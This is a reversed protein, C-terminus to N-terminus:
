HVHHPVDAGRFISVVIVVTVTMAMAFWLKRTLGFRHRVIDLRLVPISSRWSAKYCLQSVLHANIGLVLRM